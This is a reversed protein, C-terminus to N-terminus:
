NGMIQKTILTLGKINYPNKILTNKLQIKYIAAFSM